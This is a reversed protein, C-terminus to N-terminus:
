FCVSPRRGIATGHWGHLLQVRELCKVMRFFLIAFAITGDDGVELKVGEM